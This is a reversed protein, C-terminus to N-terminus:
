RSNEFIERRFPNVDNRKLANRFLATFSPYRTLRSPTHINDSDPNVPKKSRQLIAAKESM